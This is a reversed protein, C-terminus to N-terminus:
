EGGRMHRPDGLRVMTGCGSGTMSATHGIADFAGSTRIRWSPAIASGAMGCTARSGNAAAPGAKPQWRRFGHFRQQHGGLGGYRYRDSRTGHWRSSSSAGRATEFGRRREASRDRAGGRGRELRQQHGRHGGGHRRSTYRGGNASVALWSRVTGLKSAWCRAGAAACVPRRRVWTPPVAVWRWMSRSAAPDRWAAARTRGAAGRGAARRIGCADGACRERRGAGLPCRRAGCQLRGAEQQARDRFLQFVRVRLLLGARLSGPKTSIRFMGRGLPRRGHQHNEAPDRGPEQQGAENHNPTALMWPSRWNAARSSAGGAASRKGGVRGGTGCCRGVASRRRLRRRLSGSARTRCAM